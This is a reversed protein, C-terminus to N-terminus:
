EEDDYRSVQIFPVIVEEINAGGHTMIIEGDKTFATRNAALLPYMNNPLGSPPWELASNLNASAAARLEKSGYIRMRQGNSEVLSGEKPSGIGKSELNGHDSTIYVKYKNKHFAQLLQVLFGNEAWLNVQSLMGKAGLQMGHLIKDVQDIVVGLIRNGSDSLVSSFGSLNEECLGRFYYIENKNFGKDVWFNIWAKEEKSTQYISEAFFMPMKGSFIAQRSISTITPIWAFCVGESFTFNKEQKQLIEKITTWQILSLGDVVLLAIKEDSELSKYLYKPIQHLMVPPNAPLNYLSSYNEFLWSQFIDDVKSKLNEYRKLDAETYQLYDKIIQQSVSAYDLAIKHWSLTSLEHQSLDRELEDLINTIPLADTGLRVGPLMWGDYPQLVKNCEIPYLTKEVFLLSIRSQIDPHSFPLLNSSKGFDYGVSRPEKSQTDTSREFEAIYEGWQNQLYKVFSNKDNFFKVVPWNSFVEKKQLISILRECINNPMKIPLRHFDLLTKLIETTSKIVQPAIDFVYLLIFDRTENESAISHLYNNHAAYLKDYFVPHLTKVVPLSLYPFIDSLHLFIKRGAKLLDYPLDNENDSKSRLVVILDTKLGKDWLSRYLSEYAYRFSISDEYEIIEFGRQKILSILFEEQLVSDPDFVITLKSVEPTFYNLIQNRWSNM